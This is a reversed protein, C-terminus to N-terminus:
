DDCSCASCAHQFLGKKQYFFLTLLDRQMKKAQQACTCTDHTTMNVSRSHSVIACTFAYYMTTIYTGYMMYMGDMYHIDIYWHPM